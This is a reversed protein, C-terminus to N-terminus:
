EYAPVVFSGRYDATVKGGSLTMVPIYCDDGSPGEFGDGAELVAKPDEGLTVRVRFAGEVADMGSVLLPRRGVTVCGDHIRGGFYSFSGSWGTGVDLAKEPFPMWHVVAGSGDDYRCLLRHRGKDACAEVTNTLMDNLDAKCGAPDAFGKLGHRGDKDAEVSVDDPAAIREGLPVYHLVAKAGDGYRALVYHKDRDKSEQETLMRGLSTGCTGSGGWDVFCLRGASNTTITKGDGQAGGPPAGWAIGGAGNAYAIQGAFAQGVGFISLRGGASQKTWDVSVGDVMMGYQTPDTVSVTAGGGGATIKLGYGVKTRSNGPGQREMTLTSDAGFLSDLNKGLTEIAAKNRMTLAEATCAKILANLATGAADSLNLDIPSDSGMNGKDDCAVIIDYVKVGNGFMSVEGHGYYAGFGGNPTYWGEAGSPVDAWARCAVLLAALLVRRM